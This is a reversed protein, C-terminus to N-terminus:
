AGREKKSKLLETKLRAIKWRPDYAAGIEDFEKRIEEIEDEPATEAEEEKAVEAKKGTLKSVLAATADDAPVCHNLLGSIYRDKKRGEGKGKAVEAKVDAETIELIAGARRVEGRFQFTETVQFQM